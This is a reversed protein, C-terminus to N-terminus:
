KIKWYEIQDNNWDISGDPYEIRAPEKGPPIIVKPMKTEDLKPKFIIKWKAGPTLKLRFPYLKVKGQLSISKPFGEVMELVPYIVPNFDITNSASIESINTRAADNIFATLGTGAYPVADKM